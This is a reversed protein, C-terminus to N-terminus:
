VDFDFDCDCDCDYHVIKPKFEVCVKLTSFYIRQEFNVLNQM